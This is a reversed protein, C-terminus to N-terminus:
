PGAWVKEVFDQKQQIRSIDPRIPRKDSLYAMGYPVIKTAVFFRFMPRILRTRICYKCEGILAFIKTVHGVMFHRRRVYHCPIPTCDESYKTFLQQKSDNRCFFGSFRIYNELKIM